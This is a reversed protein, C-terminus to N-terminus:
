DFKGVAVVRILAKIKSAMIHFHCSNKKIQIIGEQKWLLGPDLHISSAIIYTNNIESLRNPPGLLPACNSSQRPLDEDAM